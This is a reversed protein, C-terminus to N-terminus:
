NKPNSRNESAASFGLSYLRSRDLHGNETLIISPIKRLHRYGPNSLFQLYVEEGSIDPLFADVVVLDPRVAVITKMGEEGTKCITCEYPTFQFAEKAIKRYALKHDIFVIKKKQALFEGSGNHL